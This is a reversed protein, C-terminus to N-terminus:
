PAGPRIISGAGVRQVNRGWATEGLPQDGGAATAVAAHDRGCPPTKLGNRRMRPQMKRRFATLNSQLFLRWFEPPFASPDDIIRRWLVEVGAGFKERGFDTRIISQLHSFSLCDSGAGSLASRSDIVELTVQPDLEEEPRWKPSSREESDSASVEVAAVAAEIVSTSRRQPIEGEGMGVNGRQRASTTGRSPQTSSCTVRGPHRCASSAKKFKAEDTAEHAPDSRRASARRTYGMQRPLLLTIGGREVSALSERRKVRGDQSHLLAPLIYWLKIAM